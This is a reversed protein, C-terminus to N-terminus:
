FDINLIVFSGCLCHQYKQCKLHQLFNYKSQTITSRIYELNINSIKELRILCKCITFKIHQCRCNESSIYEFIANTKKNEFANYYCSALYRKLANKFNIGRVIYVIDRQRIIM